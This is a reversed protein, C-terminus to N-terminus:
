VRRQRTPVPNGRRRTPVLFDNPKQPIQKYGEKTLRNKLDQWRIGEVILLKQIPTM